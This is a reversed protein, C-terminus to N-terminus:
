GVPRPGDTGRAILALLMGQFAFMGAAIDAIAVGLRVPAGDAEGTISM